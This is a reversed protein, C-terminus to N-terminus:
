GNSSQFNSKDGFNRKRISYDELAKNFEEQDFDPWLIDTFFLETYALHWLLFNSIRKEGGTRICLDPDSFGSLTTHSSFLEEDITKNEDLGLSRLKNVTELIEWRGGYSAAILLDLQRNQKEQHTQFESDKMEDQLENSFKSLDGIFKLSVRNDILSPVEEKLAKSLLKMLLDVEEQSRNWNESSFAFLTLTKIKNQIALEIALRAKKVGQEHGSVGPLGKKTAWRNNGDM